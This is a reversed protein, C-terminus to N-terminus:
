YGQKFSGVNLVKRQNQLQRYRRAQKKRELSSIFPRSSTSHYSQGSTSSVNDFPSMTTNFGGSSVSRLDFPVPSLYSQGSSSGRSRRSRSSGSTISSIISRTASSASARDLDSFNVIDYTPSKISKSSRSSRRSSGSFISSAPYVSSKSASSISRTVSSNEGDGYYISSTDSMLSGTQMGSLSTTASGMYANNIVVAQNTLAPNRPTYGLVNVNDDLINVDVLNELGNGSNTPLNMVPVNSNAPPPQFTQIANQRSAYNTFANKTMYNSNTVSAVQTMIKGDSGIFVGDDVGLKPANPGNFAGEGTMGGGGYNGFPGAKKSSKSRGQAIRQNEVKELYRKVRHQYENADIADKSKFMNMEFGTPIFPDSASNNDVTYGQTGLLITNQQLPASMPETFRSVFSESEVSNSTYQPAGGYKPPLIVAPADASFSRLPYGNMQRAQRSYDQLNMNGEFGYRQAGMVHLENVPKNAESRVESCRSDDTQLFLKVKEFDVDQGTRKLFGIHAADLQVRQPDLM